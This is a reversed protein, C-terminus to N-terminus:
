TNILGKKIAIKTLGALNPVNLKELINYKHSEVTKPSIFLRDAITKVPVGDALLVFVEKERASLRAIEDAVERADKTKDLELERIHDRLVEQVSRSFFTAGDKLTQLARHLESLPEEKLVYGSVGTKFLATVHERTATMSYILVQIKPDIKRIECATELGDLNPMSIDLIVMDPQLSKVKALTEVGDKASGVVEMDKDASLLNQVGEVVVAHDDAILVRFKEARTM